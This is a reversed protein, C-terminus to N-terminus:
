KLLYLTDESNILKNWKIDHASSSKFKITDINKDTFLTDKALFRFSQCLNEPVGKLYIEYIIQSFMKMKPIDKSLYKCFINGNNLRRQEDSLQREGRQLSCGIVLTVIILFVYNKM